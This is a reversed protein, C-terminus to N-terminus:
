TKVVKQMFVNLHLCDESGQIDPNVLPELHLPKEGYTTANKIEEWRDVPEPPQLNCTKNYAIAIVYLLM